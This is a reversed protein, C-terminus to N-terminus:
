RAESWDSRIPQNLVRGRMRLKDSRDRSLALQKLFQTRYVLPLRTFRADRGRILLSLVRRYGTPPAYPAPVAVDADASELAELLMLAVAPRSASEGAAVVAYQACVRLLASDLARAIGRRREHALVTVNERYRAFGRALSLTENTSCDDVIIFGLAYSSALPAFYDAFRVLNARFDPQENYAPVIVAVSTM